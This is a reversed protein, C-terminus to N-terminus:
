KTNDGVISDHIPWFKARVRDIELELWDIRSEQDEEMMSDYKILFEAIGGVLAYIPQAKAGFREVLMLMGTNTDHFSSLFLHETYDDSEVDSPDIAKM